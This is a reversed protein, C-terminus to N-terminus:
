HIVTGAWGLQVLVVCGTGLGFVYCRHGDVRVHKCLSSYFARLTKAITRASVRFCVTTEMPQHHLRVTAEYYSVKRNLMFTRYRVAVTCTGYRALLLCSVTVVEQVV